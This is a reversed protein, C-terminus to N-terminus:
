VRGNPVEPLEIDERDMIEKYGVQMHEENPYDEHYVRHSGKKFFKALFSSFSVDPGNIAAWPHAWSYHVVHFFVGFFWLTM